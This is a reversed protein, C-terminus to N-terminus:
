SGAAKKKRMECYRKVVETKGNKLQEPLFQRNFNFPPKESLSVDKFVMHSQPLFNSDEESVHVSNLSVFSFNSSTIRLDISIRSLFEAATRM